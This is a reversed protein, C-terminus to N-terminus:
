KLLNEIYKHDYVENPNLTKIKHYRCLYVDNIQGDNGRVAITQSGGKKNVHVTNQCHMCVREILKLEDQKINYCTTCIQVAANKDHRVITFCFRCQSYEVGSYNVIGGNDYIYKIASNCFKCKVVGCSLDMYSNNIGISRHEDIFTHIPKKCNPTDCISLFWRTSSEPVKTVPTDYIKTIWTSPYQALGDTKQIICRDSYQYDTKMFRVFVGHIIWNMPYGDKIVRYPLSIKKLSYERRYCLVCKDLGYDYLGQGSHNMGLIKKCVCKDDNSCSNDCYSLLIDEDKKQLIINM